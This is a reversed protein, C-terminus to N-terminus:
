SRNARVGSAESPRIERKCKPSLNRCRLSKSVRPACILDAMSLCPCTCWISNIGLMSLFWSKPKSSAGKVNPQRHLLEHLLQSTTLTSDVRPLKSFNIAGGSKKSKKANRPAIQPAVKKKREDYSIVGGTGPAINPVARTKKTEARQRNAKAQVKSNKENQWDAHSQWVSGVGLQGLLWDKTKASFGKIGRFKCEQQLQPVTMTESIRLRTADKANGARAKNRHKKTKPQREYSHPQFAAASTVAEAHYHYDQYGFEDYEDTSVDSEYFPYSMTMDFSRDLYPLTTILEVLTSIQQKPSKPSARPRLFSHISSRLIRCRELWWKHVTSLNM